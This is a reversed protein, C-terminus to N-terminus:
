NGSQWVFHVTKSHCLYRYHGHAGRAVKAPLARRQFIEEGFFSVQGGHEANQYGPIDDAFDAGHTFLYRMAKLAFLAEVNVCWWKKANENTFAASCFPTTRSIRKGDSLVESRQIIRSYENQWPISTIISKMQEPGTVLDVGSFPVLRVRIWWFWRM